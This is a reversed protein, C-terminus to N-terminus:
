KLTYTRNDIKTYTRLSRETHRCPTRKIKARRARQIEGEIERNREERRMKEEEEGEKDGQALYKLAVTICTIKIKRNSLWLSEETDFDKIVTDASIKRSM